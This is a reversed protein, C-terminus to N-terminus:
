RVGKLIVPASEDVLEREYRSPGVDDPDVVPKAKRVKPQPWLLGEDERATFTVVDGAEGLGVRSADLREIRVYRSKWGRKGNSKLPSSHLCVALPLDNRNEKEGFLPAIRDNEAIVDNIRKQLERLTM